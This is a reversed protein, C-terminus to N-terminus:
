HNEIRNSGVPHKKHDRKFHESCGCYDVLLLKRIGTSITLKCVYERTSRTMKYFRAVWFSALVFGKIKNTSAEGACVEM